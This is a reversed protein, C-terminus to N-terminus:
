FTDCLRFVSRSYIRGNRRRQYLPIWPIYFATSFIQEEGNCIFTDISKAQRLTEPYFNGDKDLVEAHRLVIKQGKEGKVHVEVVGTVIQGFDNLDLLRSVQRTIRTLTLQCIRQLIVTCGRPANIETPSQVGVLVLKSNSM